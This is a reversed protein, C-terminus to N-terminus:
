RELEIELREMVEKVTLYFAQLALYKRRETIEEETMKFANELPEKEAM